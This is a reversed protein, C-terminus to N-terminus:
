ISTQENHKNSMKSFLNTNTISIKSRVLIGMHMIAVRKYCNFLKKLNDGVLINSEFVQKLRINSSQVNFNKTVM